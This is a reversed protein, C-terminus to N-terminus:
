TGINTLCVKRDVNSNYMALFLEKLGDGLKIDASLKLLKASLSPDGIPSQFDDLAAKKYAIPVTYGAISFLIQVLQQISTAKGTCVNFIPANTNTYKMGEYLFKVVDKVYVFDRSQFGKGNININTGQLIQKCFAEIVGGHNLDSNQHAGYVNFMRFGMTPLKYIIGAVRAHMECGLKDVGISNLPRLKANESLTMNANDGYVSASSAYVVPVPYKNAKTAAELVNITGTLNITHSESWQNISSDNSESAALHFCGDVGNMIKILLKKDRIDGIIVKANNPLNTRTGTSLNDIIRVQHGRSLLKEVLHSGIFGCGGTVLYTTM